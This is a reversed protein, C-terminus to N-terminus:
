KKPKDIDIKINADKLNKPDIEGPAGLMLDRADGTKPFAMVERINPEDQLVMVFRDLGPAIGGHPPAGYEFAELLHGFRRQATKEDINLIDFIKKQLDREHIRMSGGGVEYGNLVIDYANSRVKLPEKDLLDIDENLPRTFPHHVAAINGYGAEEGSTNAKFLPFDVVWAFALKKPDLLNMKKGIELRVQGLSECAIEFKDASFFIIDGPKAKVKVVIKQALDDGLFKVIPSQLENDKVIIYALGKAHHTKAVETLEDIEKRSFKAGGEVKLGKVIGGNKVADAFVSFGCDKVEETLDTFPMEFRLEPKDSGYTNMAEDYTFRKFPKFMIEKDPKVQECVHTFLRETLQLIDEQEVFSMEMDLQTFEPQRDGRQDEEGRGGDGQGHPPPHGEAPGRLYRGEGPM